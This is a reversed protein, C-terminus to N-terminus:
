GLLSKLIKYKDKSILNLLVACFFTTTISTIIFNVCFSLEIKTFIHYFYYIIVVFYMHFFYILTSMNRMWINHIEAFIPCRLLFCVLMMAALNLSLNIDSILFIIYFILFFLGHFNRYRKLIEEYFGIFYGMCLYGFGIFFGNRTTVFIQKYLSLLQNLFYLDHHSALAKEVMLGSLTFLGGVLLIKIPSVNKIILFRIMITAYILALLYWLPYSYSNEGVFIVNRIFAFLCHTIPKESQYFAFLTLPFYILTYLLYLKLTKKIYKNIKELGGTAYSKQLFFGSIIFFVPVALRLFRLEISSTTFVNVHLAIVFFSLIIKIVDFSKYNQVM